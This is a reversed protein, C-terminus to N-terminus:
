TKSDDADDLKLFGDTKFRICWSRLKDIKTGKNMRVQVQEAGYRQRLDAELEGFNIRRDTVCWNKIATTRIALIDTDPEYRILLKGTPEKDPITPGSRGDAAGNIILMDRYHETVFENVIDETTMHVDKMVGKNKDILKRAFEWIGDMDFNHLGLKKALDLGYITCAIYASWFRDKYTLGLRAEVVDVLNNVQESIFEKERQLAQMFLIGAHGYNGELSRNFEKTDLSYEKISTFENIHVELMRAMEPRADGQTSLKESISTNGTSVALLGWPDGRFRERNASGEMRNRQKGQSISLVYDSLVEPSANTLEDVYLAINKWVEARNLTSNKTDNANSALEKYDGWVSAAAWIATTKGLGTDGSYIHMAGAQINAIFEVLPAGFATGIVFQHAEMGPQNFFDMAKRWGALTGKPEFYKFYGSTRTSPHNAVIRGGELILKDGAAFATKTKDWGFQTRAQQMATTRQLEKVWQMVYDQLAKQNHSVIGYGALTSTLTDLRAINKLPITFPLVPDNPRHRHMVVCEQADPDDILQVAYFDYEYVPIEDYTVNNEKDVNRQRVYVGGDKARFYPKPYTPITVTPVYEIEKPELKGELVAPKPGPPKPNAPVTNDAETAKIFEM